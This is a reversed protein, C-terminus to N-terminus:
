FHLRHLLCFFLYKVFRPSDSAVCMWLHAPTTSGFYANSLFTVWCAWPREWHQLAKVSMNEHDQNLKEKSGTVQAMDSRPLLIAAASDRGLQEALPQLLHAVYRHLEVDTLWVPLTRM